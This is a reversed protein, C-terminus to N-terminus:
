RWTESLIKMCFIRGTCDASAAELMKRELSNEPYTAIVKEASDINVKKSTFDIFTERFSNIRVQQSDSLFTTETENSSNASFDKKKTATQFILLASIGAIIFLMSSAYTILRLKM